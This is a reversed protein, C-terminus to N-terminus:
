ANILHTADSTQMTCEVQFIPGDRIYKCQRHIMCHEMPYSHEQVSSMDDWVKNKCIGNRCEWCFDCHKGYTCWYELERIPPTYTRPLNQKMYFISLPRNLGPQSLWILICLLALLKMATNLHLNKYYAFVIYGVFAISFVLYFCCHRIIIPWYDGGGNKWSYKM